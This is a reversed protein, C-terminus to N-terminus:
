EDSHYWIAGTVKNYRPTRPAASSSGLRLQGSPGSWPAHTTNTHATRVRAAATRDRHAHAGGRPRVGQVGRVLGRLVGGGDAARQAAGRGLAQCMYRAVDDVRM